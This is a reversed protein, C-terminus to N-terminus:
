ANMRYLGSKDLAVMLAPILVLQLIIGPIANLLAGSLFLQWTFASGAVGSLAVRVAGWVVRGALMAPIMACYVSAVSKRRFAAYIMGIVIGYTMLEFAMAIANPFMAPMGFLVSRMLPALFGVAGGWRWGCILGCLLIPLHMPCLMQGIQPIQGILFPLTLALALFLASLVLRKINQQKM